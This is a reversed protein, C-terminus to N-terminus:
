EDTHKDIEQEFLEQRKELQVCGKLITREMGPNENILRQADVVKEWLKARSQDIIKNAEQPTYKKGM